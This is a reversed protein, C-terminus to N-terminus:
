APVQTSARDNASRPKAREARAAPDPRLALLMLVVAGVVLMNDAFNFIACDFNIADVKFHVFDRVHHYRLRDYCNGVAGAMILALAVTLRWDKAAKMVFLYYCIAVAAIISLAAFVLPSHPIWRGFGWLAGENYSTQLQLINRVIPYPDSAYPEGLWDFVFSKTVLDFTAGGAAIVGFLVYRGTPVRDTAPEADM